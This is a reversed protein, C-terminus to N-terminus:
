AFWLGDDTELLGNIATVTVSNWNPREVRFRQDIALLRQDKALFVEPRVSEPATCTFKFPQRPRVGISEPVITLGPKIDLYNFLTFM